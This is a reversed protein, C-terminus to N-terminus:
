IEVRFYHPSIKDSFVAGLATEFVGRLYIAFDVFEDGCETENSNPNQIMFDSLKLIQEYNTFYVMDILNTPKFLKAFLKYDESKENEYVDENCCEILVAPIKLDDITQNVYKTLKAYSDEIFPNVVFVIAYPVSNDQHGSNNMKKRLLDEDSSNVPNYLQMHVALTSKTNFKDIISCTFKSLANTKLYSQDLIEQFEKPEDLLSVLLIEVKPILPPEPHLNMNNM